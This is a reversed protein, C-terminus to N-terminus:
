AHTSILLRENTPNLKALVEDKTITSAQALVGDGSNFVTDPLISPSDRLASLPNLNLSASDTFESVSADFMNIAQNFDFTSAPRPEIKSNAAFGIGGSSLAADGNPLINVM